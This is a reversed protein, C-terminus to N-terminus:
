LSKPMPHSKKSISSGINRSTGSRGAHKLRQSEFPGILSPLHYKLKRSALNIRVLRLGAPNKCSKEFYGAAIIQATPVRFVVNKRQIVLVLYTSAHISCARMTKACRATRIFTNTRLTSASNCRDRMPIKRMWHLSLTLLKWKALWM